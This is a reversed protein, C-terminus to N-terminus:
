GVALQELLDGHARVMDDLRYSQEVRRRNAAGVTRRLVPDSVLEDLASSLAASSVPVVFPLNESAVMQRVDGVDVSAIPLGADMAELVALPMQETDISLALLDCQMMLDRADSRRGLLRVHESLGMQGVTRRVRDREPGDGIILLVACDHLPAFAALVRLPNKEPRLAGVWAIRVLGRRPHLHDLDTRWARRPAVGNPIYHLRPPPIRWDRLALARLQASPVFVHSGRLALRRTWVRRRFQRAAEDPGFGDELHLHPAGSGLRALAVEICGWNYTLLVDPQERRLLRRYALLRRHFPAPPPPDLYRIDVHPPVLSAAQYDGSLAVVAHSLRGALEGALTVFRVQAGGTDFRTFVHLLRLRRGPAANRTSWGSRASAATAGM